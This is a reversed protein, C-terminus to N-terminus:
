LEIGIAQLDKFLRANSSKFGASEDHLFCICKFGFKNALDINRIDDDIFFCNRPESNIKQTVLNFFEAGDKIKTMSNFLSIFMLNEPCVKLFSGINKKAVCYGIQSLDSIIGLQFKSKIGIIRALLEKNYDNKETNKKAKEFTVNNIGSLQQLKQWTEKLTIKGYFSDDLVKAAEDDFLERSIVKERGQYLFELLPGHVGKILVNGIDWFIIKKNIIM